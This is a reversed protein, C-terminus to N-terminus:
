NKKKFIRATPIKTKQKKPKPMKRRFVVMVLVPRPNRAYVKQPDKKRIYDFFTYDRVHFRPIIPYIIDFIELPTRDSQPTCPICPHLGGPKLPTRTKTHTHTNKNKM